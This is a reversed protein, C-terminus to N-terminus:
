ILPLYRHNKSESIVSLFLLLLRLVPGAQPLFLSLTRIHFNLSHPSLTHLTHLASLNILAFSACGGRGEFGSRGRADRV